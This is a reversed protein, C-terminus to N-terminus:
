HALSINDIYATGSLPAGDANLYVGIYSANVATGFTGTMNKWAGPTTYIMPISAWSGTTPNWAIAVVWGSYTDSYFDFTMSYNQLQYSSGSSSCLQAGIEAFTGNFSVKLSRSGSSARDTSSVVSTVGNSYSNANTSDLMAAWPAAAGSEFSWSACTGCVTTGSCVCSGGSCVTGATCASGSTWTGSSSCTQPTQGSCQTAGPTCAGTCAGNVCAQNTCATGNTWAGSSSCTQVTQGSCQTAGPTCAGTCAGNVCAQNTCATGSTWTGSSSCTQPTQGSCQTAGPTCAATALSINDIYATGSLPAGDANLYVGVYSANVATGFTGTMNKWAGPTTYIMPISAWSGTTSNWAIAVVWGSYTDSYFDFTMSYNQLQYSSGSSSCLQAGIEAFTGNFSVKLSRSGSSARDTSSVVSTVGNSYSNANTSDLMAAWPAAAGSEFSWSACTGCVTTGSCGCSGSGSVWAGSSSCTQPTTGSCQTAGPTCVAGCQGSTVSGNVWVGSSNCTQPTTGSCQTAGPTCAATALSINDIYATGSLPAGDANLYVGVYSANVATGFTGTMNKWAGPTTYIMPISAWSGTTSNWAIAVVWGSYTDSYFDFTMSYNQLQYSSGSSSCLQAGIEAFTGNFSVKLSRSGSSARDTSSVVSTVGNSYSNANTSDLMAAWPAAAGSEFSWSACTGCVTTGSCVCSGGSCVTGATCASGSTWTGSSSCTQVNQGSCQTAGPTCVGTCAGNVCAQNACAAGSTWTGSSSCTQLTQGSCQTAGPTCAGTCAGNVCAQNACAAGSTWTGLSSCTQPTQGSCQTAGPSCVGACAGNLCAQNTCATGNTWTGSSSCTQVTQGSCQTAGPACVPYKLSLVEIGDIKANDTVNAFAIVIQGSANATVTFERVVAKYQAGATAYIDFNSLVNTGNISVNFVRKGTASWYLEAFHLRVVYQASAVLSPLTYSMSGYRESQYVGAPAANTVGTTNITNTVVYTSGGTGYADASFPSTGSSSGCDIQYVPVQTPTAASVTVSANGSVGGSSATVTYPGGSSAGATFLGGASISGGGSATWTFTPQVSLAASFQDRAVATFQQTGSTFINSSAPVVVISTLKATVTVSMASQVTLGDQDRVTVQFSYTGAGAFTATTTKAANTGNIGFTVAAPPTGSTTWTYMLNAEGKDDAGLVSLTATTGVVPNPTASAAAVITPPNNTTSGGDVGDSFSTVIAVDGARCLEINVTTSHGAVLQAVVPATSVWTLPTQSNVQSCASNYAGETLTVTGVPLGTATMNASQSPTVDFSRTATSGPGVATLVICRVDSPVNMTTLMVVASEVSENSNTAPRGSCSVLGLSLLLPIGLSYSGRLM